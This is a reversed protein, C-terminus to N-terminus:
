RDMFGITLEIAPKQALDTWLFRQTAQQVQQFLRPSGRVCSTMDAVPEIYDGLGICPRQEELSRCIILFQKIRDNEVEHRRLAFARIFPSDVCNAATGGPRYARPVSIASTTVSPADYLPV